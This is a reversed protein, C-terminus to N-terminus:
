FSKGCGALTPAQKDRLQDICVRESCQRRTARHLEVEIRTTSSTESIAFMEVLMNEHKAESGDPRVPNAESLCHVEAEEEHRVVRQSAGETEGEEIYAESGRATIPLSDRRSRRARGGKSEQSMWM